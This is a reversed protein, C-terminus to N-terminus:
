DLAGAVYGIDTKLMDDMTEARRLLEAKGDAHLLLEAPRLRGNYNSAMTYGYAGTNMMCLVDGRRIEAIPRNVAFTDTECLYGVIDYEILPGHPNSLNVIHHYAGYSMPRLFHNFGSSVYVMPNPLGKRVGSVEMLFYGSASVLYKGPELIMTIQRGISNCFENFRKSVRKGFAAIDIAHDDPHYPIKFGGGLDICEITDAWNTAVSLLYEYAEDFSSSDGIDSGLHMHVGTVRLSLQDTKRKLEAVQGAMFGFKSGDSGVQLKAHGGAQIAPNFRLTVAIGPYTEHLWDLIHFQDVHIHVGHKLAFDYDQQLVGSPTFSIREPPVGAQLAMIIEGPSVTEIGCGHHYIYKVIGITSLAKCAYRIELSPVAFSQKLSSIQQLITKADYVYLPLGYQKALSNLQDTPIDNFM